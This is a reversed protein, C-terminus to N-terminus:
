PKKRFPTIKDIELECCSYLVREKQIDQSILGWAIFQVLLSDIKKSPLKVNKYIYSISCPEIKLITRLLDLQKDTLLDPKLIPQQKKKWVGITIRNAILTEDFIRIYAIWKKEENLAFHPKNEAEPVQIELVLKKMEKPDHWVRYSFKIEPSCFRSAAAEVVYYEEEPDIGKISGNDKVGILLRGGSTNAFACLTKAIKAPDDIRYKFDQNEHEGEELLDYISLGESEM